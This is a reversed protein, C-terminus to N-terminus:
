DMAAIKGMPDKYGPDQSASPDVFDEMHLQPQGGRQVKENYAEAKAMGEDWVKHLERRLRQKIWDGSFYVHSDASVLREKVEPATATVSMESEEEVTPIQESVEAAASLGQRHRAAM